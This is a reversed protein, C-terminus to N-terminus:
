VRSENLKEWDKNFEQQLEWQATRHTARLQASEFDHKAQLLDVKISYTAKLAEQELSLKKSYGFM